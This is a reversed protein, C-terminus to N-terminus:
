VYGLEALEAAIADLVDSSAAAQREFLLRHVAPDSAEAAPRLSPAAAAVTNAPPADPATEETRTRPPM